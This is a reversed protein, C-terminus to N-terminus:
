FAGLAEPRSMLILALVWATPFQEVMHGVVPILRFVHNFQM